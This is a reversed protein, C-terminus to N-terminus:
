RPTFTPRKYLEAAKQNKERLRECQSLVPCVMRCMEESHFNNHNGQCGSYIFMECRNTHSNFRFRTLNRDADDCRGPDLPEFCVDRPKPCCVAYEGVPSLQCKHSSPCSEYDPGCTVLEDSGILKLPEGHQCPNEKKPLCMPMPPCPGNTCEVDVLRCTEGEGRCSIKTCPDICKCTHCGNENLEFGHLCDHECKRLPCNSSSDDCFLPEGLPKRTQSLEFGREDVCWCEKLAYNCQKKEFSGDQQCQPIFFKNAPLGSEHAQHHALYRQHQCTTFMLPELCQTGCGNSCCRKTGNCVLDSNCEFDCTTSVTPM